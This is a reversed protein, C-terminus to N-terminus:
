FIIDDFPLVIGKQNSKAEPMNAEIRKGALDIVTVNLDVNTKQSGDNAQYECLNLEGSVFVVQGKKLYAKFRGEARKDWLAVRLWM